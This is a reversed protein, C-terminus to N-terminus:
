GGDRQLRPEEPNPSGPQWAEEEEYVGWDEPVPDQAVAGALGAAHGVGEPERPEREGDGPSAQPQPSPEQQQQAGLPAEFAQLGPGATRRETNEPVAVVGAGGDGGLQVDDTETLLRRRAPPRPRARLTLPHLTAERQRLPQQQAAIRPSSRRVPPMAVGAMAPTGHLGQQLQQQQGPQQQGPRDAFQVAAQPPPSQAVLQRVHRLCATPSVASALLARRQPARAPAPPRALACQRLM